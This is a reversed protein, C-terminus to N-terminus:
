AACAIDKSYNVVSRCSRNENFEIKELGTSEMMSINKLEVVTLISGVCRGVCCNLKRANSIEVSILKRRSRM